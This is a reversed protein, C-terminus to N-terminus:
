KHRTHLKCGSYRLLFYRDCVKERGGLQAGTLWLLAGLFIAFIAIGVALDPLHISPLQNLVAVVIGALIVVLGTGMLTNGYMLCQKHKM